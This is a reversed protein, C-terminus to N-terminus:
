KTSTILSIYGVPLYTDVSLLKSRQNCSSPISKNVILYSNNIAQTKVYFVGVTDAPTKLNAGWM